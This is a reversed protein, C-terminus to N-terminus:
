TLTELAADVGNPQILVLNAVDVGCRAAYDADFNHALDLYVLAEGAAQALTKYALTMAGSTPIGSLRTLHGKPIGGINLAQDLSPFGTSIHPVGALKESETFQRLADQGWARRIAVVAEDLRRKQETTMINRFGLDNVWGLSAAPHPM